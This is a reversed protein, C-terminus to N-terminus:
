RRPRRRRASGPSTRGSLWAACRSACPAPPGSLPRRASRLLAVARAVSALDPVPRPVPWVRRAFLEPPWDFAEAQVDEPLCITVAGTELPERLSELVRRDFEPLEDLFRSVLTCRKEYVIFGAM